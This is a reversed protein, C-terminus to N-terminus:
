LRERFSGGVLRLAGRLREAPLHQAFPLGDAQHLQRCAHDRPRTPLLPTAYAM